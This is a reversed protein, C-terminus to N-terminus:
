EVEILNRIFNLATLIEKKCVEAFAKGAANDEDLDLDDKVELM